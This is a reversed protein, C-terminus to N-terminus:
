RNSRPDMADRLADGVLNFALTTLVLMIGPFFMMWWAFRYLQGVNADAIMQGWSPTGPPIGVGLYSLSAEFIINVPILLTTYVILPAVLNPVIERFMIHARGFGTARAAEVFERERLSLTQGRVIRAIYTWGFLAIIMTVLWVGPKLLGGLCGNESVGCSASIGIAILFVPLSLVIDTLRSTFTDTKGGFYGGLLGLVLGVVVSIATAFLAVQISTRAGYLTRVFVDRGLQDVGGWYVKSPGIVPINFDNSLEPHIENPGHHAVFRVFLPVFIASMLLVIVWVLALLAVKDRRFRGWFLQWPTRGEVRQSEPQGVPALTEVATDTQQIQSVRRYGRERGGFHLGCGKQPCCLSGYGSAGGV